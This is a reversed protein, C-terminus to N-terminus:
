GQMRDSETLTHEHGNAVLASQDGRGIALVPPGNVRACVLAQPTNDICITQEHHYAIRARNKGRAIASMPLLATAARINSEHIHSARVPHEYRNTPFASDYCGALSEAPLPMVGSCRAPQGANPRLIQLGYPVPISLFKLSRHELGYAMSDLNARTRILFAPQFVFM